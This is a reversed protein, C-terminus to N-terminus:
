VLYIEPNKCIKSKYENSIEAMFKEVKDEEVLNVTCGGFGAGTMRSGLVYGMDMTADVLIDLELCSVQYDHRLSEHSQYMLRGFEEMNGRKLLEISKLVRKNETVVHRARSAQLSPLDNCHESMMDLTVDRLATIDPYFQRMISVAEDCEKKRRNYESKALERKKLTDVIIISFSDDIPIQSYDDSRCDIFLAEGLHGLSAVFQDMIGSQVGVFDNEARKGLYAMKVPDLELNNIENLARLISIELAASSSLGSGIPVNGSIAIDAGSLRHGCDRLVKIIGKIYNSWSLDPDRNIDRLSFNTREEFDVAYLNFTDDKRKGVASYVSLSLPTPLVFGENYDTHEGILNVRGPASFIKAKYGYIEKFVEAALCAM